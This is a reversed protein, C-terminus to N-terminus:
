GIATEQASASNRRIIVTQNGVPEAFRGARAPRRRAGRALVEYLLRMRGEDAGGTSSYGDDAQSYRRGNSRPNRCPHVPKLRTWTGRTLSSREGVTSERSRRRRRPDGDQAAAHRDDQRSGGHRRATSGAAAAAPTPMRGLRETRRTRGHRAPSRDRASSGVARVVPVATRRRALREGRRRRWWRRERGRTRRAPGAPAVAPSRLQAPDGAPTVGDDGAGAGPGPGGSAAAAGHRRQRVDGEGRDLVEVVVRM